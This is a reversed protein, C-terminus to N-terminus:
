IIFIKSNKIEIKGLLEYEFVQHAFKKIADEYTPNTQCFQLFDDLTENKTKTAHAFTEVFRDIDFIIEAVGNEVLKNTGISQSIRHPLVYIKKNMKMAYEISRMTGSNLDAYTVILADGLAVVLENRIPFNYKQSPTNPKFQSIVLGNQEIQTILTKNTAPYRKDLGTAAVMITNNTGAAKHAIADVGMAGGSVVTVGAQSLKYSLQYTYERAYQNPKRSGVISIKQKKLLELNGIYFLDQPYKKMNELEDIHSEIKKIM